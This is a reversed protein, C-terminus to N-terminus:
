PLPKLRDLFAAAQEPTLDKFQPVDVRATLSVSRDVYVGQMKNLM